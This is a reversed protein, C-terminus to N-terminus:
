KDPFEIVEIPSMLDFGLNTDLVGYKGKLLVTRSWSNAASAFPWDPIRLALSNAPSADASEVLWHHESDDRYICGMITVKQNDIARRRERAAKITLHEETIVPPKINTIPLKGPEASYNGRIWGIVLGTLGICILRWPTM